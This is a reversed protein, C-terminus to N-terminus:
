NLAADRERIVKDRDDRINRQESELRQRESVMRASMERIKAEYSETLPISSSGVTGLQKELDNVKKREIEVELRLNKIMGELVM